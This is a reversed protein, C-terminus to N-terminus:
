VIQEAPQGVLQPTHTCSAKVSDLRTWFREDKLDVAKWFGSAAYAVDLTILNKGVERLLHARAFFRRILNKLPDSKLFSANEL